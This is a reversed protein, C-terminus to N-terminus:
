KGKKEYSRLAGYFGLYGGCIQLILKKEPIVEFGTLMLLMFCGLSITPRISKVYWNGHEQEAAAIKANSTVMVTQFELTKTAVRAEIEALKARIKGKEETSTHLNDVLDGIPKFMSGIEGFISM